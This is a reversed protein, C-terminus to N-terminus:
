PVEVSVEKLGTIRGSLRRKGGVPTVAVIDGMEGSAYAKGPIELEINGKMLRIRVGEGAQIGTIGNLHEQRLLTGRALSKQFTMSELLSEEWELPLFVSDPLRSVEMEVLLIQNSRFASGKEVSQVLQAVPVFQRIRVPLVEEGFDLELRGTLFGHIRQSDRLRLPTPDSISFTPALLELELRGGTGADAKDIFSLLDQCFSLRGFSAHGVPIVATRGGIIVLENKIKKSVIDRILRHPLLMLKDAKIGLSLRSLTKGAEEECWVVDSLRLSQGHEVLAVRKM